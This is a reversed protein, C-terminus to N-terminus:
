TERGRLKLVLASAALAVAACGVAAGTALDFLLHSPPCPLDRASAATTEKEGGGGV